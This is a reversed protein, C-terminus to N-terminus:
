TRAKPGSPPFDLRVRLGQPTNDTLDLEAGHLEAIRQVISLGLGAGTSPAGRVRYFRELARPRLEEPIGPGTDCVECIVGGKGDRRLDVGVSGGQPTYRVANDLLNRVLISLSDRDGAVIMPGPADLSIEIAKADAATAIEALETEVVRRLDVPKLLDAAQEPDLRALTLLQSVLRTAREVSHNIQNLARAREEPDEARLAVQSQVKIAALPTRLEHSANATFRREGEIATELRGLLNNLSRVIGRVEDPVRSDDIPAMQDPSRETIETPLRKLPALGRNVTFLIASGVFPLALLIPWTISIAVNRAADGSFDNEVGVIVDLGEFADVRYYFRWPTGDMTGNRFGPMNSMRSDPAMESKELLRRGDWVQYTSSPIRTFARETDRLMESLTEDDDERAEQATLWIFNAGQVLQTDLFELIRQRTNWTTYATAAVWVCFFAGLLIFLMRRRISIM